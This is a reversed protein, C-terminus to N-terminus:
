KYPLSLSLIKQGPVCLEQNCALWKADVEFDLNKKFNYEPTVQLNFEASDRYGFTIDGTLEEFKEAKPYQWEDSNIKSSSKLSFETPLGFKGPEKAYIHWGANLKFKVTLTIPLDEHYSSASSTLNLEKVASEAQISNALILVILFLLRM